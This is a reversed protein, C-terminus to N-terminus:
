AHPMYLEKLAVISKPSPGSVSALYAERREDQAATLLGGGWYDPTDRGASASNMSLWRCINKSDLVRPEGPSEDPGFVSSVFYNVEKMLALTERCCPRPARKEEVLDTIFNPYYVADHVSSNKEPSSALTKIYATPKQPIPLGEVLESANRLGAVLYALRQMDQTASVCMGARTSFAKVVADHPLDLKGDSRLSVSTEVEDGCNEKNIQSITPMVTRKAKRSAVCNGLFMESIKERNLTAAGDFDSVKLAGIVANFQRVADRENTTWLNSCCTQQLRMLEGASLVNGTYEAMANCVDSRYIDGANATGYLVAAASHLRELREDSIARGVLAEDIAHTLSTMSHCEHANPIRQNNKTFARIDHCDGVSTAAFLANWTDANFHRTRRPSAGDVSRSHFAAKSVPTDTTLLEILGSSTPIKLMSSLSVETAATHPLSQACFFAKVCTKVDTTNETEGAVCAVERALFSLELPHSSM